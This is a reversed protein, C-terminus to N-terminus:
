LVGMAEYLMGVLTTLLAAAFVFLQWSFRRSCVQGFIVFGMGQKNNQQEPPM